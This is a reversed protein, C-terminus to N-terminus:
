RGNRSIIFVEIRKKKKIKLIVIDNRLADVRKKLDSIAKNQVNQESEQQKFRETDAILHRLLEM